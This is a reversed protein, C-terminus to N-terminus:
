TMMEYAKEQVRTCIRDYMESQDMNDPFAFHLTFSPFVPNNSVDYDILLVNDTSQQLHFMTTGGYNSVGIRIYTRTEGIIKCEPHGGLICESLKAYKIHMGGANSVTSITKGSKSGIKFAIIVVVLILIVWGM